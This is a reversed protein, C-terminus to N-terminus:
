RQDHACRELRAPEGELFQALLEAACAHFSLSQERRLQECFEPVWPLLHEELFRREASQVLGLIELEAQDEAQAEKVCLFALFCLELALHDPREDAEPRLELGFARYFDRLELTLDALAKGSCEAEYPKTGGARTLREHERRLREEDGSAARLLEFGDFLAGPALEGEALVELAADMCEVIEDWEERWSASPPRFAQALAGYLTARAM